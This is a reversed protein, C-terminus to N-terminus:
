SILYMLAVKASVNSGASNRVRLYLTKKDNSIYTLILPVSEWSSGPPEGIISAHAAYIHRDDTLSISSGSSGVDIEKYKWKPNYLRRGSDNNFDDYKSYKKTYKDYSIGDITPIKYIEDIGISGIYTTNLSMDTKDVYNQKFHVGDGDMYLFIPNLTHEFFSSVYALDFRATRAFLYPAGFYYQEGWYETPKSAINIVANEIETGDKFIMNDSTIDLPGIHGSNAYIDGNTTVGFNSGASFAWSYNRNGSVDLNGGYGPSIYVSGNQGFTGYHIATIKNDSYEDIYDEISFGAIKAGNAEITGSLKINQASMGSDNLEFTHRKEEEGTTEGGSVVVKNAYLIGDVTIGLSNGALFAWTRDDGNALEPIDTFYGSSLMVSNQKGIEGSYLYNESITFNAISGSDADIHGKIYANQAFLDGDINVEFAGNGINLAGGTIEVSNAIMNGQRDVEFVTGDGKDRIYIQGSKIDIDGSVKIEGATLTKAIKAEDSILLKAVLKDLTFQSAEIIGSCEVKQVSLYELQAKSLKASKAEIYNATVTDAILKKVTTVDAYGVDNTLSSVNDGTQVADNSLKDKKVGLEISIYSDNLANYKTSIVRLYENVGLDEYIVKVNDGLMVKELPEINSYGDARSLDIFSVTITTKLKGIDHETIYKEAKSKLLEQTPGSNDDTDSSNFESTLDVPLVKHHKMNRADTKDLWMIPNDLEVHVVSSVTETTSESATPIVESFCMIMSSAINGGLISEDLITDGVSKIDGWDTDTTKKFYGRKKAVCVVRPIKTWDISMWEPEMIGQILTIQENYIRKVYRQTSDNWSYVEGNHDGKSAIQVPTEDIPHYPQGGDTYSLWGDQFPKSGVIYVQKFTDSSQTEESSSESHYYPYIGDCLEEDSSEQTLETMNKGYRIQFGRDSGRKALIRVNFKDFKVEAKYVSLISNDGGMLLARMNYPQTTKFSKPSTIDTSLVFPNKLGKIVGYKRSKTDDNPDEYYENQIQTLTELLTKGNVSTVPLGIMDYSIHQANITVIGNLPKSISYIRFPQYNDYPNPKCFIIRQQTLKAYNEGNVPYDMVVEFKDNLKEEVECRTASTLVGLGLSDFKQENEEFLIIM